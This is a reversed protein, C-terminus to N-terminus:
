QINYTVNIRVRVNVPRGAVLYPEYRWTKVSDLTPQQLARPGSIVHVDVLTGDKAITADIVTTGSIRWERAEAPYTNFGGVIHEGATIGDAIAAERLEPLPTARAPPTYDADNITTLPEVVDLDVDAEGIPGYSRISRSLTPDHTTHTLVETHMIRIARPLYRGQFRVLSNFLIVEGPESELRLIPASGDFCFRSITPRLQGNEERMVHPTGDPLLFSQLACVLTADGDAQQSEQRLVHAPEASTTEPVPHTLLRQLLFGAADLSSPSAAFDASPLTDPKTSLDETDPSDKATTVVLAGHDTGYIAEQGETSSTVIRYKKDSVWWEQWIGQSKVHKKEDLTQWTARLHWPQLDSGHLGNVQSALQLLAAPDSPLAPSTTQPSSSAPQNQQAFAASPLCCTLFLLPAAIRSRNM